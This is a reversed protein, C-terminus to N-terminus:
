EEIVSNLKADDVHESIILPVPLLQGCQGLVGCDVSTHGDKPDCASLTRAHTGDGSYERSRYMDCISHDCVSTCVDVTESACDSSAVDTWVQCNAGLNLLEEMDLHCNHTTNCELADVYEAMQRAVDDILTEAPEISANARDGDNRSQEQKTETCTAMDAGHDFVSGRNEGGSQPSGGTGKTDYGQELSDHVTGPTGMNNYVTMIDQAVAEQRGLKESIYLYLYLNSNASVSRGKRTNCLKDLEAHDVPYYSCLIHELAHSPINHVARLLAVREDAM